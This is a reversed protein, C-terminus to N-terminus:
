RTATILKANNGLLVIGRSDFVNAERATVKITYRYWPLQAPGGLVLVPVRFSLIDDALQADVMSCEDIILLTARALPSDHNLVFLPGDETEICRYILSHLTSADHCGKKRMVHAAKGTYAAFLVSGDAHAALHKALTTKGTGAYGFLRYIPKDRARLWRVVDCLAYDQQLSFKM